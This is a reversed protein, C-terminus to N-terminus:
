MYFIKSENYVDIHPLILISNSKEIRSFKM